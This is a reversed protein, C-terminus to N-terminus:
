SLKESDENLETFECNEYTIKFIDAVRNPLDVLSLM